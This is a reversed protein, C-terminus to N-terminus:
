EQEITPKIDRNRLYQAVRERTWILGAPTQLGQENLKAAITRLTSFPRLGAIVENTLIYYDANRLPKGFEPIANQVRM